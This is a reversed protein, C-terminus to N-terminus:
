RKMRVAMFEDPAIITLQRKMKRSYRVTFWTGSRRTPTINRPTAIMFKSAKVIDKNRVLYDRPELIVTNTFSRFARKSESIPPHIFIVTALSAVIDHADVDSGVCDGHHFAFPERQDSTFKFILKRFEMKQYATMGRQTGTFGIHIM